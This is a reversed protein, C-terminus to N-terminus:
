NLRFFCSFFSFSVFVIGFVYVLAFALVLVFALWFVFLVLEDFLTFLITFLVLVFLSLVTAPLLMGAAPAPNIITGIIMNATNAYM